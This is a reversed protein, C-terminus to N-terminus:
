RLRQPRSRAMIDLEKTSTKISVRHTRYIVNISNNSWSRVGIDSATCCELLQTDSIAGCRVAALLCLLDLKLEHVCDYEKVGYIEKLAALRGARQDKRRSHYSPSM